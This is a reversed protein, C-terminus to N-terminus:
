KIFHVNVPYKYFTRKSAAITGMICMVLGAVLVVWYLFGLGGGIAIALITTLIGLVIQAGGYLISFNLTEVSVARLYPSRDKYILFVILPGLFWFFPVSIYSVIGWLKEDSESVPPQGPAGGYQQPQYGYQGYQNPPYGQPAQYGYQQNPDGYPPQQQDPDGYPPQGYGPQGQQGYGPQGQQGYGPQGQQGYDPQGQQGYDPQADGPQAYGGGYPQPPVPQPQSDAAPDSYGPLPWGGPDSASSASEPPVASSGSALPNEGGEPSSQGPTESPNQSM